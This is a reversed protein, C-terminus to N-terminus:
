LDFFPNNAVAQQYRDEATRYKPPLATGAATLTAWSSIRGQRIATLGRTYCRPCRGRRLRRASRSCAACQPTPSPAANHM